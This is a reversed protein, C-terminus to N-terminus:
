DDRTMRLWGKDNRAMGTIRLCGLDDWDDKTM